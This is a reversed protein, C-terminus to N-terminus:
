RQQEDPAPLEEILGALAGEEAVTILIPTAWEGLSVEDPSAEVRNRIIASAYDDNRLLSVIPDVEDYGAKSLERRQRYIQSLEHDLAQYKESLAMARSRETFGPDPPNELLDSAQQFATLSPPYDAQRVGYDRELDAFDKRIRRENRALQLLEEYRDM